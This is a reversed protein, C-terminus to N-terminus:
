VIIKEDIKIGPLSTPISGTSIIINKTKYVKQSNNEQVKIENSSKISAQGKIYTVKNKKFLFEVGKTLTTVSKEKIKM